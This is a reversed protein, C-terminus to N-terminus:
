SMAHVNRHKGEFRDTVQLHSSPFPRPRVKPGYGTILDFSRRMVQVAAYGLKEHIQVINLDSSATIRM